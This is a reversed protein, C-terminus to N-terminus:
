LVYSSMRSDSEFTATEQKNNMLIQLRLAITSAGDHARFIRLLWLAFGEGRKDSDGFRVPESKGVDVEGVGFYVVSTHVRDDRVLEEAVEVSIISISVSREWSDAAEDCRCKDATVEVGMVWVDTVM